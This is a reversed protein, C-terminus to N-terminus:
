DAPTNEEDPLATDESRSAELALQTVDKDGQKGQPALSYHGRSKQHLVGEQTLRYLTSYITGKPLDLALIIDKQSLPGREALLALIAQRSKTHQREEAKGAVTWTCTTADFTLALEQEEVDRGTVHLTAEGEGRARKLVMSTDAAGTLGLTGSIEDFADDSGMKRTHHVLILTLHYRVVLSHLAAMLAYDEQYVSSGSLGSGSSRVRALTDIVVLRTDPASSLVTDLDQLGGSLLPKWTLAYGFSSPVPRGGLLKHVRSQFRRESDELSLYLVGTPQVPYHGFALPRQQGEAPACALALSLALWSKGLKPKGAFLVLGECFLGPVLWNSEPLQASMLHALHNVEPLRNERVGNEDEWRLVSKFITKELEELALPGRAHRGGGYREENLASLLACIESASLGAARLRGAMSTLYTNRAEQLPQAQAGAAPDAASAAHASIQAEQSVPPHTPRSIEDDTKREHLPHKSAGKSSYLAAIVATPIVLVPNQNDWTYKGQRNRSPPAVVYGGEGRTDVFQGLRDCTNPLPRDTKLYLHYGGSGTRARLTALLTRPDYPALVDPAAGKHSDVDIVYLGSTAGPAMGTAIGINATPWRTWWARIQAEDTTADKVGQKTRPHKGASSCHADGCSCAKGDFSALPFVRWGRRAYALAYALPHNSPISM